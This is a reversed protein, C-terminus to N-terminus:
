NIYEIFYAETMSLNSYITKGRGYGTRLSYKYISKGLLEPKYWHLDVGVSEAIMDKTTLLTKDMSKLNVIRLLEDPCTKVHFVYAFDMIPMTPTEYDMVEVCDTKPEGWVRVYTEMPKFFFCYVIYILLPIASLFLFRLRKKIIGLILLVFFTLFCLLGLM